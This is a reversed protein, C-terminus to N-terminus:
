VMTPEMTQDVAAVLEATLADLDVQERMRASFAEVTRAANYRRRNFAPRGRGPRPARGSCHRSPWPPPRWPWRRTAARRNLLEGFGFVGAVHVAGLVATLVGDVLTRNVLRDIAYLRYRLVAIGIGAHMGAPILAGLLLDVPQPARLGLADSFIFAGV